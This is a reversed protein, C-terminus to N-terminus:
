LKYTITTGLQSQKSVFRIQSRHRRFHKINLPRKDLCGHNINNEPSLVLGFRVSTVVVVLFPDVFTEVWAPRGVTLVRAGLVLMEM